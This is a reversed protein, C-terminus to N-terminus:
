SVKDAQIKGLRNKGAKTKPAVIDISGLTELLIRM